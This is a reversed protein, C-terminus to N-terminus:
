ERRRTARAPRGSALLTRNLIAGLLLAQAVFYLWAVLGFVSAFFGSGSNLGGTLQAYAPFVYALGVIFAAALAAGPLLDLRRLRRSPAM